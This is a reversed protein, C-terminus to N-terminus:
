FSDWSVRAQKGQRYEGYWSGALAIPIDRRPFETVITMTTMIPDPPQGMAIRTPRNCTPCRDLITMITPWGLMQTPMMWLLEDVPEHPADSYAVNGFRVWPKLAEQVEQWLSKSVIIIGNSALYLDQNKKQRAVIYPNPVETLDFSWCTDCVWKQYSNFPKWDRDGDIREKGRILLELFRSKRIDEETYIPHPNFHVTMGTNSRCYEEVTLRESQQLGYFMLAVDQVIPEYRRLGEAFNRLTRQREREFAPINDRRTPDLLITVELRIQM